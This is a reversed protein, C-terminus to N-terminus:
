VINIIFTDPFKDIKMCENMKYMSTRLLKRSIYIYLLTKIESLRGYVIYLHKFYM